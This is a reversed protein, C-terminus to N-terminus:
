TADRSRVLQATRLWQWRAVARSGQGLGACCCRLRGLEVVVVVVVDCDLFTRVASLAFDSQEGVWVRKLISSREPRSQDVWDFLLACFFGGM